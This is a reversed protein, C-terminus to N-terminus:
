GGDDSEVYIQHDEVAECRGAALMEEILTQTTEYAFGRRTLYDGLRRRFERPPLSAFRRAATEAAQRAADTDDFDALVQSIIADTVGKERLEYRLAHVGRPNLQARNEVWYRAFAEDDLLSARVLRTIVAHIVEEDSGRRYLHRRVEAESRPRYSLFNLAWEHAKEVEDRAQLHAIDEDSLTQGVRLRAAEIAALGFAFQEDVYVNVRDRHRKQFRLATITGAM